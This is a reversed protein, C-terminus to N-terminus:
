LCIPTKTMAPIPIVKIWKGNKFSYHEGRIDIATKNVLDIFVFREPKGQTAMAVIKLLKESM